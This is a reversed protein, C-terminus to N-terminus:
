LIKRDVCVKVESASPMASTSFSSRELHRHGACVLVCKRVCVCARVICAVLMNSDAYMESRMPRYFVRLAGGRVCALMICAGLYIFCLHTCNSAKSKAGCQAISFVGDRRLARAAVCLCACYVYVRVGMFICHFYM